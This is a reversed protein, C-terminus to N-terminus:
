GIVSLIMRGNQNTSTMQRYYVPGGNRSLIEYLLSGLQVRNRATGTITHTVSLSRDQPAASATSTKVQTLM